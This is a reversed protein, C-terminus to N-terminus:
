HSYHFRGFGAWVDHISYLGVSSEMLSHAQEVLALNTGLKLLPHGQLGNGEEQPTFIRPFDFSSVFWGNSTMGARAQNTRKTHEAEM